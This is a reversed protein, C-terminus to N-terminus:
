DTMKLKPPNNMRQDRRSLFDIELKCVNCKSDYIINLNEEFLRRNSQSLSSSPSSLEKTTTKTTTSSSSPTTTSLSVAAAARNTAMPRVCTFGTSARVVFSSALMFFHLSRRHQRRQCHNQTSRNSIMSHALRLVLLATAEDIGKARYKNDDCFREHINNNEFSIM